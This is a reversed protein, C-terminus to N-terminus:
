IGGALLLVVHRDLAFKTLLNITSVVIGNHRVVAWLHVLVLFLNVETGEAVLDQVHILIQAQFLIQADM